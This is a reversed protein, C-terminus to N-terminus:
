ETGKTQAIQQRLEERLAPFDDEHLAQLSLQCLQLLKDRQHKILAVDEIRIFSPMDEGEFDANDLENEIFAKLEEAHEPDFPTIVISTM